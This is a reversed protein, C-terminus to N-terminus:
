DEMMTAFLLSGASLFVVDFALLLLLWSRTQGADAALGFSSTRIAGLTVPVILPFVLVPLLAERARSRVVLAAFLCAVSVLGVTGLAMSGVLMFPNGPVRLDFLVIAIM